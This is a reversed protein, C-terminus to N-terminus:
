LKVETTSLLELKLIFLPRLFLYTNEFHFTKTSPLVILVSKFLRKLLDRHIHWQYNINWFHCFEINCTLFTRHWVSLDLLLGVSVFITYIALISALTTWNIRSINVMFMTKFAEIKTSQIVPVIDKTYMWGLKCM